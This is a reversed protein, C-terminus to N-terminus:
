WAVSEFNLDELLLLNMTQEIQKVENHGTVGLFVAQLLCPVQCCDCFIDLSQEIDPAGM